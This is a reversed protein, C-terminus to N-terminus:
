FSSPSLNIVTTKPLIFPEPTDPLYYCIGPLSANALIPAIKNGNVGADLACRSILDYQSGAEVAGSVIEEVNGGATVACKIVSCADYGMQISAKVIKKAKKGARIQDNLISCIEQEKQKALSANNGASVPSLSIMLAIAVFIIIMKEKIMFFTYLLFFIRDAFIKNRCSKEDWAPATKM